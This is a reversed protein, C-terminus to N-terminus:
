DGSSALVIAWLVVAVALVGLLVFSSVMAVAMRMLILFSLNIRIRM